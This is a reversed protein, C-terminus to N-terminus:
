AILDHSCLARPPKSLSETYPRMKEPHGQLEQCGNLFQPLRQSGVGVAARRDAGVAGGAPDSSRAGAGAGKPPVGSVPVVETGATSQTWIFLKEVEARQGASAVGM